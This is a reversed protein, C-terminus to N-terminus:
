ERGCLPKILVTEDGEHRIIWGSRAGTEPVAGTSTSSSSAPPNVLGAAFFDPWGAGPTLGAGYAAATARVTSPDWSDNNNIEGTGGAMIPPPRVGALFGVPGYMHCLGLVAHGFEHAVTDRSERDLSSLVGIRASQIEYGRRTTAACGSSGDGCFRALSAADLAAFTIEGDRPRPDPDNVMEVTGRVSGHTAEPIQAVTKTVVEALSSPVSTSVLVRIDSGAPWGTMTGSCFPPQDRLPGTGLFIAEIFDRPDLSRVMVDESPPGTGAENRAKVRIYFKGVPAPQWHHSPASSGTDIVAVDSLGPSTGVEVLFAPGVVSGAGFAWKLDVANRNGAEATVVFDLDTVPGPPLVSGCGDLLFAVCLAAVRWLHKMELGEHKLRRAYGHGIRGTM